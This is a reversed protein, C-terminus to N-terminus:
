AVPLFWFLFWIVSQVLTGTTNALLLVAVARWAGCSPVVQIESPNRIECVCVCVCARVRM